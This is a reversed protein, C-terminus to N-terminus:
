RPDDVRQLSELYVVLALIRSRVEAEQDTDRDLEQFSLGWIPMRPQGHGRVEGRGDIARYVRESPFDGGNDARLQALDAPRVVLLDAMPGTGDAQEGHCNLCHIRYLSRGRELRAPDTSPDAVAPTWIAAAGLIALLLSRASIPM